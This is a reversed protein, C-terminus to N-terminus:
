AFLEVIAEEETGVLTPVAADCPNDVEEAMAVSATYWFWVVVDEAIEDWALLLVTADIPLVIGLLESEFAIYWFAVDLTGVELETPV